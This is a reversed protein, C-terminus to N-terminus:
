TKPHRQHILKTEDSESAFAAYCMKGSKRSSSTSKKSSSTNRPRSTAYFGLLLTSTHRAIQLLTINAQKDPNNVPHLLQGLTFIKPSSYM